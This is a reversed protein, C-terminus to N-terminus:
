VLKFHRLAIEKANDKAYGDKATIEVIREKQMEVAKLLVLIKAVTIVASITPTYLL